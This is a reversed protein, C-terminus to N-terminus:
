MFQIILTQQEFIPNDQNHQSNYNKKRPREGKRIGASMLFDQNEKKISKRHKSGAKSELRIKKESKRSEKYVWELLSM